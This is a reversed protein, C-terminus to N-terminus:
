ELSEEGWHFVANQRVSHNKMPTVNNFATSRYNKKKGGNGGSRANSLPSDAVGTTMTTTEDDSTEVDDDVDDDGDRQPLSETGSGYASSSSSPHPSVNDSPRHSASSGGPRHHKRIYRFFPISSLSYRWSSAASELQM